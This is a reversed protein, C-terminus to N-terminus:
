DESKGGLTSLIQREREQAMEIRRRTAAKARMQFTGMGELDRRYKDAQRKVMVLERALLSEPSRREEPEPM